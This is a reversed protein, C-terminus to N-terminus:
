GEKVGVVLTAGACGGGGGSTGSICFRVRARVCVRVRVEEIPRGVDAWSDVAEPLLHSMRVACGSTGPWPAGRVPVFEGPFALGATQLCRTLPSSLILQPRFGSSALKAGLAAAQLKGARLPHLTPLASLL